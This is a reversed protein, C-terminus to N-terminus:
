AHDRTHERTFFFPAAAGLENLTWALRSAAALALAPGTGLPVTLMGALLADRAGLGAPTPGLYGALYSLAFAGTAFQWGLGVNPLIGRALWILAWGYVLWTVVNIAIGFVLVLASPPEPIPGKTRALQWIRASVSRNGVAVMTLLTIVGLAMMVVGAYPYEDNVAPGLTLAAVAVGAGVSLVQMVVAAGLTFKSSIGARESLAVMGAIAMVKGPLYKGFSSLMWISGATPWYLKAGWGLAIRRWGEILGLWMLWVAGLSLLIWGPRFVLTVGSSRVSSWDAAIKRGVVYLIVVFAVTQLWTFWRSRLWSVDIGNSVATPWM